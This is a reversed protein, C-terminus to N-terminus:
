DTLLNWVWEAPLGKFENEIRSITYGKCVLNAITKDKGSWGGKNWSNDPKPFFFLHLKVAQEAEGESLIIGVRIAHESHYCNSVSAIYNNMVYDDLHGNMITVTGGM